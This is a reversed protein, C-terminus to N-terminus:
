LFHIPTFKLIRSPCFNCILTPKLKFGGQTRYSEKHCLRLFEAPPGLHVMLLSSSWYLEVYQVSIKVSVTEWQPWEDRFTEGQVSRTVHCFRKLPHPGKLFNSEINSYFMTSHIYDCRSKKEWFDITTSLSCIIVRLCTTRYNQGTSYLTPYPWPSSFNWLTPYHYSFLKGQVDRSVKDTHIFIKFISKGGILFEACKISVCHFYRL